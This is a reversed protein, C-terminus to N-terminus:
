GGKRSAEVAAIADAPWTVQTQTQPNFVDGPYQAAEAAAIEEATLFESPELAFVDLGRAIETAYIRGNYWYASWYGGTILQEADVPGRDFYAIEVPNDADTFDIVSIGGQYWAQVFIDRGPVPIISGNHAVCNEKDSQPAPLKYLSDFSLKGDKLSYIADAGWNRPDGAQCRPRGGGGWEDTFLVKTGDNNFTASHWYAFGKDTVDDIRVPKLPDSIDLIIGNGSCAGAAINKAPFVTIDHCQNTVYTDQTPEGAETVGHDGGRWLGAIQGDKAFVRPSDVIRSKAPDALPIEIVDISFLATEDGATDFCGALEADDRVYSTGSNYVVIRRDDAAVVSHTHSGRCTQVLGVQRPNTIDSIDFIRLGRFRDESVRGEVGQLGCDKRARSDQVSMILIDGVISVDGQGGPCVVSTVLNPVGDEGLRYANWGHYSGAVLLDGSFAMDTNAFSLLSGRQGFRDESEEDEDRPDAKTADVLEAEEEDDEIRPQLQAPNAPDFFGTPKPMATVIRLNSIAEGADRFGPALGARPDTSLKAGVANMRDIEGQQEVKIDNVFEFMVPDYATGPQDLLDDVMRIAGQHHRIMLELFLADFATGQLSALRKMQEPTAMGMAAMHEAHTMGGMNAATHQMTAPLGRSSLWDRMFAIEDGQGADIRGAIKVIDPNSTRGDVLQTMETAQQHHPIMMQMFRADAPAFNTGALKSADEAKLSRNEQGPAGPQIIPADQAALPVAMTTALAILSAATAMTRITM